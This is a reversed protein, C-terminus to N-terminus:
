NGYKGVLTNVMKVTGNFDFVEPSNELLAANLNYLAQRTPVDNVKLATLRAIAGNVMEMMADKEMLTAM